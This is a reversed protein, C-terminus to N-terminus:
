EYYVFYEHGKRYLIILHMFCERESESGRKREKERKCVHVCVYYYHKKRQAGEWVCLYMVVKIQTRIEFENISIFDGCFYPM